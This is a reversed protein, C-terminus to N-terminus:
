KVILVPCHALHLVRESVSGVLLGALESLGRSGLVILDYGEAQALQVIEDAANGTLVRTEVALGAEDFPRRTAGLVGEEATRVRDLLEHGLPHEVEGWRYYHYEKIVHHVFAVTLKASPNLKLLDRAKEAARLANPSGDSPLLIKTFM